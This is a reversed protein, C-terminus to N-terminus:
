ESDTATHGNVMKVVRVETPIPKIDHADVLFRMGINQTGRDRLGLSLLRARLRNRALSAITKLAENVM